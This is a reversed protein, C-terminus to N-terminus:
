TSAVPSDKRKLRSNLENVLRERERRHRAYFMGGGELASVSIHRGDVLDIAIGTPTLSFSSVQGRNLTLTEWPQRVVIAGEPFEVGARAFRAGLWVTFLLIAGVAARLYWPPTGAGWTPAVIVGGQVIIGIVTFVVAVTAQQRNRYTPVPQTGRGM